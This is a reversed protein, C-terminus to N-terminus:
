QASGLRTVLSGNPRRQSRHRACCRIVQDARADLIVDPREPVHIQDRRCTSSSYFFFSIIGAFGWRLRASAVVCFAAQPRLRLLTRRLCANAFGEAASALSPTASQSMRETSNARPVVPPIARLSTAVRASAAIIGEPARRLGTTAARTDADQESRRPRVRAPRADGGLAAAPFPRPRRAIEAAGLTAPVPRGPGGRRGSALTREFTRPSRSRVNSREPGGNGDSAGRLRRPSKERRRGAHGTRFPAQPRAHRELRRGEGHFRPTGVTERPRFAAPPPLDRPRQAVCGNSCGRRPAGPRLRAQDAASGAAFRKRAVPPGRDRGATRFWHTRRRTLPSFPCSKSDRHTRTAFCGAGWPRSVKSTM